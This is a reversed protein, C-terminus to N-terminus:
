AGGGALPPAAAGLPTEEDGSAEDGAADGAAGDPVPIEAGIPVPMAPVPVAGMRAAAVPTPDWAGAEFEDLEAPPLM